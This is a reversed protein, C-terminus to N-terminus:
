RVLTGMAVVPDVDGAQTHVYRISGDSLLLGHFVGAEESPEVLTLSCRVPDFLGFLAETQAYVNTKQYDKRHEKNSADFGHVSVTIDYVVDFLTEGHNYIKVNKTGTWAGSLKALDRPPLCSTRSAPADLRGEASASNYGVFVACNLLFTCAVILKKSTINRNAQLM